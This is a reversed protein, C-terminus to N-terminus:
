GVLTAASGVLQRRIIADASPAASFAWARPLLRSPWGHSWMVAAVAGGALPNSRPPKPKNGAIASTGLDAQPV